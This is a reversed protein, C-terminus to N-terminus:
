RGLHGPLQVGPDDAATFTVPGAPWEAVILRAGGASQVFAVVPVERRLGGDRVKIM